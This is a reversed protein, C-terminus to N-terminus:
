SRTKECHYFFREYDVRFVRENSGLHCFQHESISADEEGNM